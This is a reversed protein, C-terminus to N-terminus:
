SEDPITPIKLPQKLLSCFYLLLWMKTGPNSETSCLVEQNAM